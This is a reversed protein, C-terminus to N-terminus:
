AGGLEVLKKLRHSMCSKSVPPDALEALDALSMEPNVVRLLATQHLKEPLSELGRKEEICRIAELQVKAADLSKEVNAVDCNVKRQIANKMDKEVKAAMHAMSTQPAGITTLFDEIAGSQKFYVLHNGRRLTDKPSLDMDRLLSFMSRSVSMHSTKLELHYGKEPDTVSGGALFAGRIFSVTCCPEEVVGFNIYHALVNNGDYGIAGAIVGLKEEGRIAYIQKGLAGVPPFVDLSLGFARQVLASLRAGFAQHETIIKIERTSFTNGYLFVGYSEALACCKKGLPRKCIEEKAKASFSFTVSEGM